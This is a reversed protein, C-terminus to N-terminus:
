RRTRKDKRPTIATAKRKGSTTSLNISTDKQQLEDVIYSLASPKPNVTLFDAIYEPKLVWLGSDNLREYDVKSKIAQRKDGIFAHTAGEINDFPPRLSQVRGGGAELIRKFGPQKSAEICLLIVWGKFAGIKPDQARKASLEIRWRKGSVSFDSKDLDNGWEHQEEDVFKGSERSAELYSKHLIWKGSAVAALYKENRSPTSIIVHTCQVNFYQVDYVTGGLQEIIAGYEIKEQVTMGSFLFRYKDKTEQSKILDTDGNDDLLLNTPMQPKPTTSQPAKEPEIITVDDDDDQKSETLNSLQLKFTQQASLRREFQEIDQSPSAQKIQQLIRERAERETPDDYTITHTQSQESIAPANQNSADSNASSETSKQSSTRSRLRKNFSLNSLDNKPTGISGSLSPPGTKRRGRRPRPVKTAEMLEEMKKQVKIQQQESRTIEDDNNLLDALEEQQQQQKMSDKEPMPKKIMPSKTVQEVTRAVELSMKPNFTIPYENERVREHKEECAKVWYPSVLFKDDDKAQIYDKSLDNMRAQHVFHSCSSDYLARTSGGLRVIIEHLEKQQMSLKRSVVCVVGELVGTDTVKKAFSEDLAIREDEPVHRDVARQLAETMQVDFPLSGRSKRSSKRRLDQSSNAPSQMGDLADGLDFSFRSKDLPFKPSDYTIPIKIETNEKNKNGPTANKQSIMDNFSAFDKEKRVGSSIENLKRSTPTKDIATPNNALKFNGTDQTEDVSVNPRIVTDLGDMISAGRNSLNFSVLNEVPKLQNHDNEIRSISVDGENQDDLSFKNVPLCRGALLCQALWDKSICPIGWKVSAEYKSGEPKMLILHTNAKMAVGAKISDKRVFFEQTTAGLAEAFHFLHERQMGSYQSVTIVCDKLITSREKPIFHPRFLFCNSPNKIEEYDFCTELWCVTLEKPHITRELDHLLPVIVHDCDDVSDVLTGGASEIMKGLEIVDGKFSKTCFKLGALFPVLTEEMSETRDNDTVTLDNFGGKPPQINNIQSLRTSEHNRRLYQDVLNSDDGIDEEFKSNITTSFSPLAPKAFVEDESGKEMIEVACYGTEDMLEGNKFSDILWTPSVVHPLSGDSELLFKKIEESVYDWVIIHTVSDKLSSLRIGGGNNIIKRCCDLIPGQHKCLYIECGDLYYNDCDKITLNHVNILTSKIQKFKIKMNDNECKDSTSDKNQNRTEKSKAAMEAAKSSTSVRMSISSRTTNLTDQIECRSTTNTRNISMEHEAEVKYPEESLWHGEKICDFYWSPSVCHLKWQRAYTYKTGVPNEVLLHTCTKMNLEGSYVAGHESALTKIIERQNADIGTVCITCGKFIPLTHQKLINESTAVFHEYKSNEWSTRIWSPSMIPIGNNAAVQYKKSGVEKAILHTVLSTFDASAEGGMQLVLDQLENRESKKMSSCCAVVGVMAVNCVPYSHKPVPMELMLCSIVCQPGIIRFGNQKFKDFVHGEFPFCVYIAHSLTAKSSLLRKIEDADKIIEVNIENSRAFDAAKDLIQLDKEANPGSSFRLFKLGPAM